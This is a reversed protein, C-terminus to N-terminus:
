IRVWACVQGPAVIQSRAETVADRLRRELTEIGFPEGFVIGMKTLQPLFSQLTEAAWAYLPSDIGGGVLTESFLDPQPLGAESFCQILRDSVDHHPLASQCAMRIFDGTVQWLPVRPLSDIQPLL